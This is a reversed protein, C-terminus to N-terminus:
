AWLSDTDAVLVNEAFSCVAGYKERLKEAVQDKNWPGILVWCRARVVAAKRGGKARPTPLTCDVPADPDEIDIRYVGADLSAQVTWRPKVTITSKSVSLGAGNGHSRFGSEQNLSVTWSTAHLKGVWELEIVQWSDSSGFGVRTWTIMDAVTCMLRAPCAQGQRGSSPSIARVSVLYACRPKLGSLELAVLSSSSSGPVEWTRAGTEDCGSEEVVEAASVLYRLEEGPNSVVGLFEIDLSESSANTLTLDQIIGLASLSRGPGSGRARLAATDYGRLAAYDEPAAPFALGHSAELQLLRHQADPHERLDLAAELDQLVSRATGPDMDGLKGSALTRLNAVSDSLGSALDSMVDASAWQLVRRATQQGPVMVYNVSFGKSRLEDEVASADFAELLSPALTPPVLLRVDLIVSGSRISDVTVATRPMHWYQSLGALVRAQRESTFESFEEALSVRIPIGTLGEVLLSPVQM